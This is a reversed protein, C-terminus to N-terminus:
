RSTRTVWLPRRSSRNDARAVIRTRLYAIPGYLYGARELWRLQPLYEGVGVEAGSRHSKLFAAPLLRPVRRAMDGAIHRDSLARKTLLATLGASYTFVQWYLEAFEGRHAHRVVASPQYAIQRGGLIVALFLDLDEAGFAPTAPGLSVDFGGRALFDDRRFAVNNSAGFIGATYPYLLTDGRHAELDFLRPEFGLGMGGYVEFAQQAPTELASPLTLGTVCVVRPGGNFGAVLASVWLPDVEADDDTFAMFEGRAVHAGINRALSAGARAERVYRIRPHSAFRTRVMMETSGNSPANDVVIVELSPYTVRLMSELCAELQDARDRTPVVISVLPPPSPPDLYELCHHKSRERDCAQQVHDIGDANLHKRVIDGLQDDVTQVLRTPSVAGQDLPLELAGLPQGHLRVIVHVQTWGDAELWPLPESLEIEAMRIRQAGASPAPVGEVLRRLRVDLWRGPSLV